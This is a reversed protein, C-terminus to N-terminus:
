REDTSPAAEDRLAPALGSLGLLLWGAIFAVGGAPVLFGLQDLPTPTMPIGGLILTLIQLGSFLLVGTIMAWGAAYKLSTRLPSAAALLAGLTHAFGYVFASHWQAQKELAIAGHGGYAGAAVLLLGLLSATVVIARM